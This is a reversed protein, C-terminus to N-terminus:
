QPVELGADEYHRRKEEPNELIVLGGTQDDYAYMQYPYLGNLQVNSQKLSQQFEAFTPWRGEAAHMLDLNHKWNLLQARSGLTFYSQAVATFPDSANIENEVEILAPNEQMAKNKDVLRAERKTIPVKKPPEPAPDAAPGPEAAQQPAAAPAAEAQQEPEKVRDACGTTILGASLILALRM